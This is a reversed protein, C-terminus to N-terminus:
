EIGLIKHLQLSLKGGTKMALQAARERNALNKHEDREDMPQIYVPIKYEAQGVEAIDRYKSHTASVIFKIADARAL